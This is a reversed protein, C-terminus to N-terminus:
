NPIDFGKTAAILNAVTPKINSYDKKIEPTVKPAEEAMHKLEIERDNLRKDTTLKEERLQKNELELLDLKKTLEDLKSTLDKEVQSITDDSKAIEIKVEEMKKDEQLKNNLVDNLIIKDVEDFLEKDSDFSKDNLQAQCIAYASSEDKGQAMVHEVCRELKAPKTLTINDNIDFQKAIVAYANRNSAIPTFTAEVLEADTWMKYTKNDINVDKSNLPIAGISIGPNLGNELAEEIQKKVQQAMPNAKDSFFFPEAKLASHMGKEIVEFNKWGGAWNSMQNKHDILAPLTKNNAWKGLLEKSMLEDDRDISTDSLIGSLRGDVTKSIPMWLKRIKREM